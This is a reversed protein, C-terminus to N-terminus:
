DSTKQTLHRWNGVEADRWSLAQANKILEATLESNPVEENTPIKIWVNATKDYVFDVCAVIYSPLQGLLPAISQIVIGPGVGIYIVHNVCNLPNVTETFIIEYCFKNKISDYVHGVFSDSVAEATRQMLSPRAVVHTGRMRIAEYIHHLGYGAAFIAATAYICIGLVVVVDESSPFIWGYVLNFGLWLIPAGLVIGVFVGLIPLLIFAVIAGWFVQQLYECRNTRPYSSMPGYVTALRYHWSKTSYNKM